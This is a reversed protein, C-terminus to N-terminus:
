LFLSIIFLVVFLMLLILPVTAQQIEEEGEAAKELKKRYDKWGSYGGVLILALLVYIRIESFIFGIMVLPTIIAYYLKKNM